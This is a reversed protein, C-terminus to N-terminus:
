NKLSLGYFILIEQLDYMTKKGFEPIRYLEAATCQCVDGLTKLGANRLCNKGRTSINLDEINLRKAKYRQVYTITNDEKPICPTSSYKLQAAITDTLKVLIDKLEKNEEELRTIIENRLDNKYNVFSAIHEEFFNARDRWYELSFTLEKEM